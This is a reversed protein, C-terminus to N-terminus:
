CDRRLIGDEDITGADIADRALKVHVPVRRQVSGVECVTQVSAAQEIDRFEIGRVISIVQRHEKM